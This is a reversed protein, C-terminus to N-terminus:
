HQRYVVHKINQNWCARCPGCKNGQLSSPCFFRAHGSYNNVLQRWDDDDSVIYVSSCVLKQTRRLKGIRTSSLRVTLNPLYAYRESTAWRYEMTPLWHKVNPTLTAVNHIQGFHKQSQLDGSDFWRFHSSGALLIQVAMAEPWDPQSLGELRKEQAQKVNPYQYHGKHAYCLSCPTGPVQRLKSGTKCHEASIGWSPCPM